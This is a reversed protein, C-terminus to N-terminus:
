NTTGCVGIRRCMSVSDGASGETKFKILRARERARISARALPNAPYGENVKKGRIPRKMGTVNLSRSRSRRRPRARNLFRSM